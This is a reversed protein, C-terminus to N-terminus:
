HLVSCFHCEVMSLVAVHVTVIGVILLLFSCVDDPRLQLVSFGLVVFIPNMEELASALMVYEEVFQVDAEFDSDVSHYFHVSLGFLM